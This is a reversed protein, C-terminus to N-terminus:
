SRCPWNHRPGIALFLVIEIKKVLMNFTYTLLRQFAIRGEHVAFVIGALGPETMVMGAAAKAVDTASSVAIGIQAQRLAPADNTGDGCMGVVHGHSQLAKVLRYKEEPVVRAFVGFQDASM